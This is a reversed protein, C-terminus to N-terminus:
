LYNGIKEAYLNRMWGRANNYSQLRLRFLFSDKMIKIMGSGFKSVTGFVSTLSNADKNKKKVKKKPKSRLYNKGDRTYFIVNGVLGRIGEETIRAM